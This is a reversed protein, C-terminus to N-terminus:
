QFRSRFSSATVCISGSITGKAIGATGESGPGSVVGLVVLAVRAVRAVRVVKVGLEAALTLMLPIVMSSSGDADSVNM